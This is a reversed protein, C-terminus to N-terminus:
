HVGEIKGALFPPSFCFLALYAQIGVIIALIQDKSNLFKKYKSCCIEFEVQCDLIKKTLLNPFM